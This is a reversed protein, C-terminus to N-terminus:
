HDQLVVAVLQQSDNRKTSPASIGLKRANVSSHGLEHIPNQRVQILERSHVRWSLRTRCEHGNSPRQLEDASGM